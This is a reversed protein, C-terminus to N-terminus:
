RARLFDIKTQNLKEYVAKLINELLENPIPRLYQLILQLFLAGESVNALDASKIKPSLAAVGMEILIRISEPDQNIIGSGYIIIYNLCPFLHGLMGEYRTFIKPFSQFLKWISPSVKKSIQTASTAYNLIDEDFDVDENTELLEFMPTLLKEIEAQYKDIYQKQEGIGRIINWIKNLYVKKTEGSRIKEYEEKGRNILVELLGLLLEPKESIATPFSTVIEYITDFLKLAMTSPVHTGLATLIDITFPSLSKTLNEKEFMSYLSENAQESLAAFNQRDAGTCEILFRLLLKFMDEKGEERFLVISYYPFIM